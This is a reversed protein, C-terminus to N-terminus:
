VDFWDLSFFCFDVCIAEFLFFYRLGVYVELYCVLVFFRFDFRWVLDRGSFSKVWNRSGLKINSEFCVVIM